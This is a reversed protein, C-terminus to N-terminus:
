IGGKGDDDARYIFVVMKKVNETGVNWQGWLAPSLIVVSLLVFSTLRKM